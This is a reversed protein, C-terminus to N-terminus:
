GEPTTTTWMPSSCRTWNKWAWRRWPGAAYGKGTDILVTCDENQILLADGKGVGVAWLRAEGRACGTMLLIGLALLVCFIKKM